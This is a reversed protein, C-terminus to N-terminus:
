QGIVIWCGRTFSPTNYSGSHKCEAGARDRRRLDANTASFVRGLHAFDVGYIQTQLTFGVTSTWKTTIVLGFSHRTLSAVYLLVSMSYQYVSQCVTKNIVLPPNHEQHAHRKDPVVHKSSSRFFRLIRPQQELCKAEDPYFHKIPCQPPDSNLLFLCTFHIIQFCLDQTMFHCQTFAPM